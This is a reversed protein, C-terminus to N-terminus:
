EVGNKAGGKHPRIAPCGGFFGGIKSIMEERPGTSAIKGGAIIAITDALNIIREQHSIIMVTRSSDKEAFVDVLMNFSWLDIGAEPEDFVALKLDRTLLTAVEIRKLEGGSLASDLARNVYEKSCLGVRSLVACCDEVSMESGHAIELLKKVTLGKFRPPAQFAYGIGLKARETVPLSTIDRGNFIISGSTPEIIGMIVKALSTKGGGNPGTILFIGGDPVTLNVDSLIDEHGTNGPVKYSINKLELM